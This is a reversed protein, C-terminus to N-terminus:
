NPQRRRMALGVLGLGLLAATGPEPIVVSAAAANAGFTPTAGFMFTTGFSFNILGLADAVMTLTGVNVTADPVATGATPWLQDFVLCSAALCDGAGVAWTFFGDSGERLPPGYSAPGPVGDIQPDSWVLELLAFQAPPEGGTTVLTTTVTITEGTLYTAKDSDVVITAASAASALGLGAVMSILARMM